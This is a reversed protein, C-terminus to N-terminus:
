KWTRKKNIEEKDRFAKELDIDLRNAISCIFILIDALEEEVSGVVSKQDMKINQQKRIAKFLEGVEEGLMLSKQLINQDSFGREKELEIVYQQFQALSPNSPLFPM